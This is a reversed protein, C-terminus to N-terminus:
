RKEVLEIRHGDPDIVFAVLSGTPTLYPAGELTAGAQLMTTVAAELQDTHFALHDPWDLGAPTIPGNQRQVFQLCANSGPLKLVAREIGQVNDSVHKELSCGVAQYFRLMEALRGTSRSIHHYNLQM